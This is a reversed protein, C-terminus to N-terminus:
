APPPKTDTDTGETEIQTKWQALLWGVRDGVSPTSRLLAGLPCGNRTMMEAVKARLIWSGSRADQWRGHATPNLGADCRLGVAQRNAPRGAMHLAALVTCHLVHVVTLRRLARISVDPRSYSVPSSWKQGERDMGNWLMGHWVMGSSAWPIVRQGAKWAPRQRYSPDGHESTGVARSKQCLAETTLALPLSSCVRPGHATAWPLRSINAAGPRWPIHARSLTRRTKHSSNKSKCIAARSPYM